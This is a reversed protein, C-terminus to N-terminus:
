LCISGPAIYWACSSSAHHLLMCCYSCLLCRDHGEQLACCIAPAQGSTALKSYRVQRLAEAAATGLAVDGPRGKVAEYLAPHASLSGAAAGACMTQCLLLDIFRSRSPEAHPPVVMVKLVQHALQVLPQTLLTAPHLTLKSSSSSSSNTTTTSTSLDSTSDPMYKVSAQLLVSWVYAVLEAEWLPSADPSLPGAGIGATHELLLQVAWPLWTAIGSCAYLLYWV